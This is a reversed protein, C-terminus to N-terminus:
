ATRLCNGRMGLTKPLGRGPCNFRSAPARVGKKGKSPSLAKLGAIASPAKLSLRFPSRLAGFVANEMKGKSLSLAKLGEAFEPGQAVTSVAPRFPM